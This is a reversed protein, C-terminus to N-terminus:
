KQFINKKFEKFADIKNFEYNVFHILKKNKLKEYINSIEQFSKCVPKECYIHKNKKISYLIIKKHTSPPSCIFVVKIKKDSVM